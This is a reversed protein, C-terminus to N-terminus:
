GTCSGQKDALVFTASEKVDLAENAVAEHEQCLPVIFVIKKGVSPKIVQAGVEAQNSCGIVSCKTSKTKTNSEWYVLWSSCDSKKRHSVAVNEIRM